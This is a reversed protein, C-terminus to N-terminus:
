GPLPEISESHKPRYFLVIAVFDLPEALAITTAGGYGRNAHQSRPMSLRAPAPVYFLNLRAKCSM